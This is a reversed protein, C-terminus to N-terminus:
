AMELERTRQGETRSVVDAPIYYDRNYNFTHAIAVVFIAVFTLAALWWVYWVMALGFTFNLAALIAGAATNKPMHIPRYGKLPRDFGRNKMDWWADSDHVVPTFAFNYDPPPSSTSWELTRGGWPDGTLDRLKDRNRISVVFMVIQSAIGCAILAAGIAAIVFWIQLSPDDFHQMRRTVGMLGLVYLPMFAVYFGTVWFVLAVKGWFEDLKFGFAKPFWFTVGAFMGFLVGGIIVNHFHAILFLSNHLVFDAPPVALLVGTMGGIVFTVIFAVVWLMPVEFRIRGRYMTFMWNFIKAGTPISIIMTTIGFFSNVDAGSGMTFFHHLWVLYALITIVVLAYVMSTYGFLRKGCFTSTIESFVGFAPLILIYVEPHGWIWILNFYLMANGGLDNTFFHTGVYRDLSLMALVATLIPFAAVILINTCLSSWVFIPLKMMTMGPARMKVITAILNIGSLLTGIGAIQLAWIYYDVGVGPSMAAGSLPPYALWTARSFEGVFLSVMVLMGGAVTMWFSFNNLFPFAVDRAGIQLPVAFNMLGTVFPMAVFFIMIMGHATFIQDYHHPPLFGQEQGFAVAQQSRMLVADAFGRLLMVGAFICYMIGIKKHDISTIWDRWMPGWFRYYTIVGLVALGVVAVGAFTAQLIPEHYPIQEITFRGFLLQQLDLNAFM